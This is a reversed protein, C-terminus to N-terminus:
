TRITKTTERWGTGTGVILLVRSEIDVKFSIHSLVQNKLGSQTCFVIIGKACRRVVLNTAQELNGILETKARSKCRAEM